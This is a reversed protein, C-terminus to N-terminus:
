YSISLTVVNALEEDIISIAEFLERYLPAKGVNDALLNSTSFCRIFSPLRFLPKWFTAAYLNAMRFKGKTEKPFADGM